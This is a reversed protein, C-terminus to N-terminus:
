KKVIKDTKAKVTDQLTKVQETTITPKPKEQKSDQQM